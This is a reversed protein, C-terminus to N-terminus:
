RLLGLIGFIVTAALTLLGISITFWERFKSAKADKAQQESEKEAKLEAAIRAQREQELSTCIDHIQREFESTEIYPTYPIVELPASSENPSAAEAERFLKLEEDAHKQLLLLENLEDPTLQEASEIDTM